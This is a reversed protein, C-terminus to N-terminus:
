RATGIRIVLTGRYGAALLLSAADEAQGASQFAGVLLRYVGDPGAVIYGPIGGERLGAAAAAANEGSRFTNVELTRPTLLVTGRERRVLRADWLATRTAQADAVTTFAGVMVRHWLRAPTGVRVPTVYALYGAEDLTDILARAAEMQDFAAVQLTYPLTDPVPVSETPTPAPTHAPEPVAPTDVAVEGVSDIAAQPASDFVAVPEPTPRPSPSELGRPRVIFWYSAAVAAVVALTATVATRWQIGRTRPVPASATSTERVVCWVREAVPTGAPWDRALLLIRDPRVTLHTLAEWPLFLFLVAGQSAFGRQLRQWRAHSWIAKPDSPSTGAPIYYLDPEQERAVHSLSSGFEFADVLGEQGTSVAGPDLAPLDVGADILAVRRTGCAARALEWAIHAAWARDEGENPVLAIVSTDSLLEPLLPPLDSPAFERATM